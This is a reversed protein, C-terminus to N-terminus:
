TSKKSLNNAYYRLLRVAALKQGGGWVKPCVPSVKEELQPALQPAM